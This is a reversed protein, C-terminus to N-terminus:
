GAPTWPGDQQGGRGAVRAINMTVNASSAYEKLGRLADRDRMLEFIVDDRTILAANAYQRQLFVTRGAIDDDFQYRGAHSSITGPAYGAIRMAEQISKGSAMERALLEKKPDSM